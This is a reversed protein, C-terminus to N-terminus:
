IKIRPVIDRDVRKVFDKTAFIKINYNTVLNKSQVKPLPVSALGEFNDVAFFNVNDSYVVLLDKYNFKEIKKEEKCDTDFDASYGLSFTFLAVLLYLVKKM